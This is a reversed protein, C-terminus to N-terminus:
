QDRDVEAEAEAEAAAMFPMPFILGQVVRQALPLGPVLIQAMGVM